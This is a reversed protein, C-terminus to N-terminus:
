EVVRGDVTSEVWRRKEENELIWDLWESKGSAIMFRDKGMKRSEKRKAATGYWWWTGSSLMEKTNM